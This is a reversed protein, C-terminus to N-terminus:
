ICRHLLFSLLPNRCRLRRVSLYTFIAPTFISRAFIFLVSIELNICSITLPQFYFHFSIFSTIVSYSTLIPCLFCFQYLLHHLLYVLFPFFLLQINRTHLNQSKFILSCWTLVCCLFIDILCALFCMIFSTYPAM